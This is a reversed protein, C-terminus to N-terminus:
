RGGDLRAGGPAGGLHRDGESRGAWWSATGVLAGALLWGGLVDTPWHAGLWVRDVAVVVLEVAGVVAVVGRRDPPALLLVFTLVVTTSALVHGSPFSGGHATTLGAELAPRARDTLAKVAPSAVAAVAGAALAAVAPRRRGGRYTVVVGALGVLYVWVPQTVAEVVQAVRTTAPSAQATQVAPASLADLGATAGATVAVTLAVFGLACVLALRIM